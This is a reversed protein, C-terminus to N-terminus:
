AAGLEKIVPKYKSVADRLEERTYRPNENLRAIVRQRFVAYDVGVMDCYCGCLRENAILDIASLYSSVDDLQRISFMDKLAMELVSQALAQYSQCIPKQTM